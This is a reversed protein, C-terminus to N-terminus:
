EEAETAPLYGARRIIAQGDASRVFDVFDAAVGRPQEASVFDLRKVFPYRGSRVNEESPAAGEIRLIKLALAQAQTAGVDFLGIAGATGVLAEHMARDSYLVRWRGAQYAAENAAEFGPTAAAVAMHGSDGRERQLVVIPAGDAWTRRAGAFIRVLEERSVDEEPVSLNAAAAVAVRAYPIVVLGLEQEAPRLPRSVLGLDIARDNVAKVAGTSGVSEFVVVPKEPWRRAFAEALERTLPLNSGSGALWLPGAEPREVAAFPDAGAGAVAREWPRRELDGVVWRWTAAAAAAVAVVSVWLVAVDARGGRRGAGAGEPESAAVGGEYGVRGGGDM